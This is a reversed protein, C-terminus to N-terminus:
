EVRRARLEDLVLEAARDIMRDMDADTLELRTPREAESGDDRVCVTGLEEDLLHARLAPDTRIEDVTEEFREFIPDDQIEELPPLPPGTRARIAETWVYPSRTDYRTRLESRLVELTDADATLLDHAQGRGTLIWRCMVGVPTWDSERVPIDLTLDSPTPELDFLRDEIRERLTAVSDPPESRDDTATGISVSEERWIIQGTPVFELAAQGDMSLDVLYAGRLGAENIHRGQPIGPYAITPNRHEIRPDHIHGLAWYDFEQRDRLSAVDSPVYRDSGPDLATHLLGITPLSPDAPEYETHFARSEAKRRYSQGCLCARETGDTEHIVSGPSDAPFEHVNAPLDVFEIGSEVPDHNGYVLYVPINAEDLRSFQEAAFQNARVSRSERDYLDGSVVVFEVAEQIAVDVLRRFADYTAARLDQQLDPNAAGLGDLPSGLHLDATHLFKVSM